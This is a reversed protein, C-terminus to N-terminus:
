MWQHRRHSSDGRQEIGGEQVDIESVGRSFTRLSRNSFQAASGERIHRHIKM